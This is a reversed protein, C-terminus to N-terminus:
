ELLLPYLSEDVRLQNKIMFPWIKKRYRNPIFKRRILRRLKSPHEGKKLEQYIEEWSELESVKFLKDDEGM